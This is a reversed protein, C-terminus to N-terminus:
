DIIEAINWLHRMGPGLIDRCEQKEDITISGPFGNCQSLSVPVTLVPGQKTLGKACFM